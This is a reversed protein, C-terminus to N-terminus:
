HRGVYPQGVELLAEEIEQLSETERRGFLWAIYPLNHCLFFM